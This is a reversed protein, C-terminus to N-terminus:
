ATAEEIMKRARQYFEMAEPSKRFAEAVADLGAQMKSRMAERFRDRELSLAQVSTWAKADSSALALRAFARQGLEFLESDTREPHALKEDQLIAEVAQERLWCEARASLYPLSEGLASKSSQVDHEASLWAVAAVLGDKRAKAVLEVLLPGDLNKLRSDKRPKRENPPPTTSM